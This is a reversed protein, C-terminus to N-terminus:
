KGRVASIFSGAYLKARFDRLTDGGRPDVKKLLLPARTLSRLTNIGYRTTIGLRYGAARARAAIKENARGHPYSLTTVSIGLKEELFRKSERLERELEEDTCNTFKKHSVGHSGIEVGRALLECAGAWDLFPTATPDSPEEFGRLTRQAGDLLDTVLFVAAPIGRSELAPLANALTDKYGDDFYIVTPKSVGRELASESDSLAIFTHGHARLWDLETEFQALPLKVQAPYLAAGFEGDTAPTTISHYGILFLDHRLSAGVLANVGLVDFLRFFPRKLPALAM